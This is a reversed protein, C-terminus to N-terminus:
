LKYKKKLYDYRANKVDEESINGFAGVLSDVLPTPKNLYSMLKKSYKKSNHNKPIVSKYFNETYNSLSNGRKKVYQKIDEVVQSDMSLTLKTQM